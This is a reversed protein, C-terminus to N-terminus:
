PKQGILVTLQLLESLPSGEFLALVATWNNVVATWVSFTSFQLWTHYHMGTM